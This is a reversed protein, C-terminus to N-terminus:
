GDGPNIEDLIQRIQRFDGSNTGALDCADLLDVLSRLATELAAVRSELIGNAM